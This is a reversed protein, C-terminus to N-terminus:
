ETGGRGALFEALHVTELELGEHDLIGRLHILCSPDASVVTRAGTARLAEAKSRGMAASLHQFKVSFVGGFGCCQGGDACETLRCGALLKRPADRVGLERLSHCGDHYTIPRDSAAAPWASVGLKEVLFESFEFTREALARIRPQLPDHEPFLERFHNRIMSACSGSPVVVADFGELADLTARALSAAEAGHGATFFPQGCCTQAPPFEARHGVRELVDLVALGVSPVVQDVVCTAFLAIRM